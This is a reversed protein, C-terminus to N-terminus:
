DSAGDGAIAGRTVDDGCAETEATANMAAAMREAKVVARDIQRQWTGLRARMERTRAQLNALDRRVDARTWDVEAGAAYVGLTAGVLEVADLTRRFYGALHEAAAECAAFPDYWRADAGPPVAGASLRPLASLPPSLSAPAPPLGALADGRVDYGADALWRDADADSADSGADLGLALDGAVDILTAQRLDAMEALTAAIGVARRRTARARTASAPSRQKPVSM